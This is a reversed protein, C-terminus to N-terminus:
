KRHRQHVQTDFLFSVLTKAANVVLLAHHKAPKYTRAHRDGMKNSVAALGCVISYLGTLIQKLSNDLDPKSPELNLQKQVRKYLHTVDGDYKPPSPDFQKEIDVLVAEILSRANTIAGDFDGEQIKTECKRIQEDIFLHGDEESGAFPHTCEVAAGGLDRLKARGKDIVIEYGDYSLRQNLYDVAAAHDLEVHDLFDRPDLIQCLLAGLSAKGNLARLKEETYSWRSPFSKGYVDDFGYENFLRVLQPGSRYPSLKEDGTVLGGIAQITRTSVKM